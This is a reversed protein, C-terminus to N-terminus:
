WVKKEWCNLQITENNANIQLKLKAVLLRNIEDKRGYHEVLKLYKM